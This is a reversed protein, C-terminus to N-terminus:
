RDHEVHYGRPEVFGVARGLGLGHHRERNEVEGWDREALGRALRERLRELKGSGCFAKAILSKPDRLVVVHRADRAGRGSDDDAVHSAPGFADADARAPHHQGVV